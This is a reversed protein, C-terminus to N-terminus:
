SVGPGNRATFSGQCSRVEHGLEAEAPRLDSLWSQRPVYAGVVVVVVEGRVSAALGALLWCGSLWGPLWAPVGCGM